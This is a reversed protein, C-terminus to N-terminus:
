FAIQANFHLRHDGFESDGDAPIIYNVQFKTVSTPFLTYGLLIRDRSETGDDRDMVDWRVHVVHRNPVIHYGSTVHGGVPQRDALQDDDPDFDGRIVAGSLSWVGTEFHADATLLVKNGTFDPGDDESFAAAVGATLTGADIDPRVWVRGVTLFSNNDNPRGVGNGNFVAAQYGAGGSTSQGSIQVGTQRGLGLIGDAPTRDILDLHSAPRLTEETFPAKFQGATLTLGPKHSYSLVADLLAPSSRLETQIDYSFGGDLKGQVRLRARRIFFQNVPPASEPPDVQFTAQSQLLIRLRLYENSFTDKLAEFLPEPEPESDRGNQAHAAPVLLVAAVMAPLLYKM